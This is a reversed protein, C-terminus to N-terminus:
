YIVKAGLIIDTYYEQAQITNRYVLDTSTSDPFDTGCQKFNYDMKYKTSDNPDVSFLCESNASAPSGYLAYTTAQTWGNSYLELVSIGRYDSDACITDYVIHFGIFILFLTILM